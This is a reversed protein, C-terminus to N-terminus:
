HHRVGIGTPMAGVEVVEEITNTQTDIIVLTGDMHNQGFNYRPTYSMQMNSSTVFVYRGDSSIAADHPEAIGPGEIVKVVRQEKVDVVTITNTEYTGFYVHRGDPTFVPHFPQSPVEVSGVMKLDMPDSSDFILLQDSLQGTIVLSNGDPSLAFQVLTHVPGELRKLEILETETDVTALSNEALSASFVYHGNPSIALAHPRPYLVELEEVSMDSRRIIGIRNPPNVATMSRGVYLFPETPHLAMMGPTEFDVQAVIENNANLKLVKNAGILSVYWYSGDPEVVVHHPKANESFGLKRFDVTRVVRKTDLDIISVLAGGQNCVYVLRSADAYPVEGAENRAGNNIWTRLLARETEDLMEAGQEGPHPGGVLRTSLNFLLSQDADFPVVVNAFESGALAHSWTDLRLGQAAEEGAHCRTCKAEFVRQVQAYPSPEVSLPLAAQQAGGGVCGGLLCAAGLWGSLYIKKM